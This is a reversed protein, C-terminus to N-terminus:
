FKSVDVCHQLATATTLRVVETGTGKRTLLHLLIQWIQPDAAPYCDQTVWRGILWVIRRQIILYSSLPLLEAYRHLPTMIFTSQVLTRQKM